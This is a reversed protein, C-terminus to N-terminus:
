ICIWYRKCNDQINSWRWTFL